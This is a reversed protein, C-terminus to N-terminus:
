AAICARLPATPDPTGAARFRAEGMIEEAVSLRRTDLCAEGAV